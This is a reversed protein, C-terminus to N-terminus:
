GEGTPASTSSSPKRLRIRYVGPKDLSLHLRSDRNLRDVELFIQNWTLGPCITMLQEFSCSSAEAVALVELIVEARTVTRAM